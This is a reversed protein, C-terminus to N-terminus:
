ERSRHNENGTMAVGGGGSQANAPSGLSQGPIFELPMMTQRPQGWASHDAQLINLRRAAERGLEVEDITVAALQERIPGERWKGGFAVISLDEPVRMGLRLAELYVREGVELDNVFVATPRDSAKLMAVLAHRAEDEGAPNAFHENYCVSKVPLDIGHEALAQRFTEEYVETYRYRKYAVFAVRRHGREAIARAAMKAVDSWPWTIVSAEAQDVGRHCLVVPIDHEDLQRLHHPPMPQTTPVIAVGTVRRDIM